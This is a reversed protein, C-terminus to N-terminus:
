VKRIKQTQTHTHTQKNKIITHTKQLRSCIKQLILHSISIHFSLYVCLYITSLHIALIISPHIYVSICLYSIALCILLCTSLCVLFHIILHAFLCISLHVSLYISPCLQGVWTYVPESQCGCWSGPCESFSLQGCSLVVRFASLGSLDESTMSIQCRDSPIPKRM